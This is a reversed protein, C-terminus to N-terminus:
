NEVEEKRRSCSARKILKIPIVEIIAPEVKGKKQLSIIKQYALKGMKEWDIRVTTLSDYSPRVEPLDGFGIISIDQPVKLNLEKISSLAGETLIDSAMLVATPPSSLSLLRKMGQYGKLSTANEQEKEILEPALKLQNDELAKKYGEGRILYNAPEGTEKITSLFAIRRHALSILYQTAQYAGGFNDALVAPFKKNEPASDVIVLPINKLKNWKKEELLELLGCPCIVGGLNRITRPITEPSDFRQIGMTVLSRNGKLCEEQIGRYIHSLHGVELVNNGGSFTMFIITEKSGERVFSGKGWEKSILGERELEIIARRVTHRNVRYEKVLQSESPLKDGPKVVKQSIKNKLQQLIQCYKPLFPSYEKIM